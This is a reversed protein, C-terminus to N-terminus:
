TQVSDQWYFPTFVDSENLTVEERNGILPEHTRIEFGQANYRVSKDKLISLSIRMDALTQSISLAM